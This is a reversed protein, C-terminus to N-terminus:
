IEKKLSLRHAHSIVKVLNIESAPEERFVAYFSVSWMTVQFTESGQLINLIGRKLSSSNQRM